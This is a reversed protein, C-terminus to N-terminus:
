DNDDAAAKLYVQNRMVKIPPISKSLITRQNINNRDHFDNYTGGSKNEKHPFPVLQPAHRRQPGSGMSHALISFIYKKGMPDKTRHTM